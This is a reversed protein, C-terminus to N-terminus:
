KLDEKMHKRMIHKNLNARQAYGSPCHPCQFAMVEDHTRKHKSLDSNSLFGKECIPCVYCREQTHIRMHIQRSSAQSFKKGCVDCAFPREQTHTRMHCVLSGKQVFAKDCYECQYPKVNAHHRLHDVLNSRGIFRKECVECKHKRQLYEESDPAPTRVNNSKRPKADDALSAPSTHPAMATATTTGKKKNSKPSVTEITKSSEADAACNILFTVADDDDEEDNNDAKPEYVIKYTTHDKDHNQQEEEDFETVAEDDDPPQSIIYVLSNGEDDDAITKDDDAFNAAASLQEQAFQEFPEEDTTHRPPVVVSDPKDARQKASSKGIEQKPSISFSRKRKINVNPPPPTPTSSATQLASTEVNTVTLGLARRFSRASSSALKRFHYADLLRQECRCCITAPLEDDPQIDLSTIMTLAEAMVVNKFIMKDFINYYTFCDSRITCVRCRQLSEGDDDYDGDDNNAAPSSAVGIKTVTKEVVVAANQRIVAEKKGPVVVGTTCKRTPRM